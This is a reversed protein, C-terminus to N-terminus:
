GHIEPFQVSVAEHFPGRACAAIQRTSSQRSTNPRQDAALVRHQIKPRTKALEDAARAATADRDIEVRIGGRAARHRPASVRRAPQVEQRLDTSTTNEDVEEVGEPCPVPAPLAAPPAAPASIPRFRMSSPGLTRSTGPRVPVEEIVVSGEALAGARLRQRRTRTASHLRKKGYVMARKAAPLRSERATDSNRGSPEPIRPLRNRIM